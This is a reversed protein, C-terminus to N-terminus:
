VTPPVSATVPVDVNAVVVTVLREDRTEEMPEADEVPRVTVPLKKVVPCAVNALAEDDPNM